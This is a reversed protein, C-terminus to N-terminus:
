VSLSSLISNTNAAGGLARRATKDSAEPLRYCDNKGKPLSWLFDIDPPDVISKASAWFHRWLSLFPNFYLNHCFSLGTLFRKFCWRPEDLSASELFSLGPLLSSCSEPSSLCQFTTVSYSGAILWCPLWFAVPISSFPIFLIFALSVRWHGFGTIVDGPHDPCSVRGSLPGWVWIWHKPRSQCQGPGRWWWTEGAVVKEGKLSM